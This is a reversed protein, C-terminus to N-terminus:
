IIKQKELKLKDIALKAKARFDREAEEETMKSYEEAMKVRVDHIDDVSFIM